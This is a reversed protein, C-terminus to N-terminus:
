PSYACYNCKIFVGLAININPSGCEPCVHNIVGSIPLVSEKNSTKGEREYIQKVSWKLVEITHKKELSYKPMYKELEEINGDILKQYGAKNLTGM